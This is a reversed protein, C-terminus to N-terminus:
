LQIMFGRKDTEVIVLMDPIEWIRDDLIIVAADLQLSLERQAHM